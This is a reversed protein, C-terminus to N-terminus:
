EEMQKSWWVAAEEQNRPWHQLYSPYKAKSVIDSMLIYPKIDIIPTGPFGDFWPVKIIGKQHDIDLIPTITMLVPNPRFESRNAFVGMSPANDGYFPPLKESVLVSRADKTDNQHAWWMIHAHSFQDLEKLAPRFKESIELYVQEDHENKRVYGIPTLKIDEDYNENNKM